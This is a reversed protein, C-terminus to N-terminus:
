PPSTPGRVYFLLIHIKGALSIFPVPVDIVVCYTEVKAVAIVVIM